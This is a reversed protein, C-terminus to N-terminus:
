HRFTATIGFTRPTFTYYSYQPGATVPPYTPNYTDLFTRFYNTTTHSNLLNNIFFSAGWDGFSTGTRFQVFTTSPLTPSIPTTFVQYQSSRPDQIAALWPNRSEFEYDFRVFSKHTAIVLNYQAGLTVNWPPNTGPSGNIAAQGSIADGAVALDNKSNDVFRASNFGLAAELAIPGLAAEAQLDFGKSVATGLNDTFQLGCNGTVYVNQQINNWRIYYVSSALKFVNNFNDKAGIEFSQTSDSKYTPPAQGSAYGMEMLPPSCFSPLPPNAGGERFGKAYTAYFLHGGNPTFTVGAKPTFPTESQSGSSPGVPGYNEPGDTFHVIDFSTRAVRGGLTLKWQDTLAYSAEGFGALQHDHTTNINYYDDGNALLPYGYIQVVSLGYEAELLANAMPDYIQETSVERSVQWFAGATWTLPSSADNSQLRIEQTVSSQENQVTAPSRYDTLGPPLHVGYNDILPYYAPNVDVAAPNAPWGLGQYLSLNYDTGEYGTLENRNYYSTNSVLRAPGLDAEIKLAPLYFRDPVPTQDPNANDFRGASPNSYDPWYTSVDHKQDNQYLISPTVTLAGIPRWIGALRLVVDGERNANSDVVAGTTPDVRDIWGGDHRYWVSVRYGLEGDIIPGGHAVGAEYSPDGYQTYSVESRAYTSDQTLSPQALIYRVTGGESGAGFLTGQPGRLVEVRDLDFTKPLADDPNFGVSRMQIPTDDIYIGTTGAGGSSSIGRISIANTGTQDISVGPTYRVIDTFDKIGKEDMDEQTFASVSVPVKSLSEERRTATVVIEKLAGASEEVQGEEPAPANQGLAVGCACLALAVGPLVLQLRRAVAFIIAKM